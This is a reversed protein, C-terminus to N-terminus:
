GHGDLRARSIRPVCGALRFGHASMAVFPDHCIRVNLKGSTPSAWAVKKQGGDRHGM